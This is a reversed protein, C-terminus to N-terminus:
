CKLWQINIKKRHQVNKEWVKIAKNLFFYRWSCRYNWDQESFFGVAFYLYVTFLISIKKSPNWIKSLNFCAHQPPFFISRDDTFYPIQYKNILKLFIDVRWVHCARNWKPSYKNRDVQWKPSHKFFITEWVSIQFINQLINYFIFQKYTNLVCRKSFKLIDISFLYLSFHVIAISM